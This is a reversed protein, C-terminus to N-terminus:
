DFKLDDFNRMLMNGYDSNVVCYLMHDILKRLSCVSEM